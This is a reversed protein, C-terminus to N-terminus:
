RPVNVNANLRERGGFPFCQQLRRTECHNPFVASGHVQQLGPAHKLVFPRGADQSDREIEQPVRDGPLPHESHPAEKSAKM